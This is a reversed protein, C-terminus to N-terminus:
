LSGRIEALSQKQSGDSDFNDPALWRVFAGKVYAGGAMYIHQHSHLQYIGTNVNSPVQGLDYVGPSFYLTDIPVGDRV